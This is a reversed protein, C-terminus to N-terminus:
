NDKSIWSKDSIIRIIVSMRNRFSFTTRLDVMLSQISLTQVVCAQTSAVSTSRDIPSIAASPRMLKLPSRTSSVSCPSFSLLSHCFNKPFFSGMRSNIAPRASPDTVASTTMREANIPLKVWEIVVKAAKSVRAATAIVFKELKKKPPIVSSKESRRFKCLRM